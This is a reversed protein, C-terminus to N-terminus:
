DAAQWPLMNRRYDTGVKEITWLNSMNNQIWNLVNQHMMPKVLLKDATTTATPTTTQSPPFHSSLHLISTKYSIDNGAADSSTHIFSCAIKYNILM